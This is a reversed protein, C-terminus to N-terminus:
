SVREENVNKGGRSVILDCDFIQDPHRKGRIPLSLPSAPALGASDRLQLDASPLQRNTTPFYWEESFVLLYNRFASLDPRGGQDTGCVRTILLHSRGKQFAV